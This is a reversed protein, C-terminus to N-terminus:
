MKKEMTRDVKLHDLLKPPILPLKDCLFYKRNDRLNQEKCVLVPVSGWALPKQSLHTSKCHTSIISKKITQTYFQFRQTDLQQQAPSLAGGPEPELLSSVVVPLSQDWALLAAPGPLLERSVPPINACMHLASLFSESMLVFFTFSHQM